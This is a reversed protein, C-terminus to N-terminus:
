APLCLSRQEFGRRSEKRKWLQPRHCQRTVKNGVTLSVSFQSEDSGMKLCTYQKVDLSVMLSILSPSGLVDVEVNVCSRLESISCYLTAKRGCLGYPSNPVPIGPRGIACTKVVKCAFDTRLQAFHKNASCVESLEVFYSRKKVSSKTLWAHNPCNSSSYKTRFQSYHSGFKPGCWVAHDLIYALTM